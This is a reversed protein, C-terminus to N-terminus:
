GKEKKGFYDLALVITLGAIAFISALLVNPEGQYAAPLVHETAYEVRNDSHTYLPQDLLDNKWPWIKVLSGFLFGTLLALVFSKFHAFLYKLLKSFALLGVVCGIAFVAIVALDVDKIGQIIVAYSGLLVLIFAGSIGPLIMACIAICGSLFIYPLTTGDATTQVLSVAAAIAAGIILAIANQWNWKPVTKIIIIASALVLGFFFAWLVIPHHVLLYTLLKALSFVSIAIGFFLAVFFNGNIHKWFAKIGDTFLLRVAAVNINALSNILEEYVGTIFAITGGSVGPVVDAAGMGMGRLVIGVYSKLNREQM